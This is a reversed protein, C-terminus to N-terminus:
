FDLKAIGDKQDSMLFTCYFRNIPMNEIKYVLRALYYKIVYHYQRENSNHSYTCVDRVLVSSIYKFAKGKMETLKKNTAAQEM